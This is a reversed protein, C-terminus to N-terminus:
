WTMPSEFVKIRYNFSSTLTLLFSDYPSLNQKFPDNSWIECFLVLILGHVSINQFDKNWWKLILFGNYNKNAVPRHGQVNWLRPWVTTQDVTQKFTFVYIQGLDNHDDDDGVGHNSFILVVSVSLILLVSHAVVM